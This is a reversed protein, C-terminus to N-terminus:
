DVVEINEDLIGYRLRIRNAEDPDLTSLFDDIVREDANQEVMEQVITENDRVPSDSQRRIIAPQFSGEWGSVHATARFRNCLEPDLESLRDMLHPNSLFLSMLRIKFEGCERPGLSASLLGSTLHSDAESFLEHLDEHRQLCRTLSTVDMISQFEGGVGGGGDRGGRSSFNHYEQQRRWGRPDGPDDLGFLRRPDDGLSRGFLGDVPPGGESHGYGRYGYPRPDGLEDQRILRGPFGQRSFGDDGGDPGSYDGQRMFGRPDGPRRGYDRSDPQRQFVQPKMTNRQTKPAFPDCWDPAAEAVVIFFMPASPRMGNPLHCIHDGPAWVGAKPEYEKADMGLRM